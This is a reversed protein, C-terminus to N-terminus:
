WYNGYIYSIFKALSVLKAQKLIASQHILQRSRLRRGATGLRGDPRHRQGAASLLLRVHLRGHVHGPAQGWPPHVGVRVHVGRGSQQRHMSKTNDDTSFFSNFCFKLICTPPIRSFISDTVTFIHFKGRWDCELLTEINQYKNIHTEKETIKLAQWVRRKGTQQNHPRLM